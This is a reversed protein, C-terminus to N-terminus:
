VGVMSIFADELSPESAEFSFIRLDSSSLARLIGNYDLNRAGQIRITLANEKVSSSIGSVGSTKAISRVLESARSEFSGSFTVTLSVLGEFNRRIESPTGVALINGERILAIRDCMEQAEPLNHTALLITKGQKRALEEKILRRFELGSIPDLGATPEDFILVPADSLLARSLLLRKAMGTSYKQFPIDAKDALGCFDLLEDIRKKAQGTPISYLASYFELNRRGSIRLNFGTNQALVAQVMRLAKRPHTVVDIGCVMAKGSDPLVLTSLIKILTTKGAGNPGLLGFVEGKSVRLDIGNLATVDGNTKARITALYSRFDISSSVSPRKGYTKVLNVIEIAPVIDLTPALNDGRSASIGQAEFPTTEITM